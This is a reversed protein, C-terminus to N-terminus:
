RETILNSFLKNLRVRNVIIEDFVLSLVLGGILLFIFAALYFFTFHQFIAARGFGLLTGIIGIYLLHCM